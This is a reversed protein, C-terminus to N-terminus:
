KSITLTFECGGDSRNEVNLTGGLIETAIQRSVYLGLGTGGNIRNTTFFPTFLNPLVNVPIGNGNDIIKLIIHSDNQYGEIKIQSNQIGEFAHITANLVLNTVL